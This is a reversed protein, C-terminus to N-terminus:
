RSARLGPLRVLLAVRRRSPSRPLGCALGSPQYLRAFCCGVASAHLLARRRDARTKPTFIHTRLGISAALMM